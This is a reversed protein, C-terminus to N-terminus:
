RAPELARRLAEGLSPSNFEFGERVARLPLARTSSLLVEDTMPGLVLRLAFRPVPLFAPRRLVRGLERAFERSRAPEPAVANVAGSSSERTLYHLFLNVLDELAIWSWFQDGSSLPGGLGLRFFPLMRALAGGAPTLVMGIRFCLTTIEAERAPDAAREWAACTEALFGQGPPDEEACTEDGREGYYGTASACLLMRPRRSLGALGRALLGTGEVRSDRIRARKSSTWRGSAIPEGALHVVADLGELAQTQIAGASPDWHIQGPHLPKHRVLALVEHDLGTLRSVLATGLLGSSGTIGIRM